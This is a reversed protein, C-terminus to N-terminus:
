KREWQDAEHVFRMYDERSLDGRQYAEDLQGIRRTYPTDCGGNCLIAGALAALQVCRLVPTPSARPRGSGAINTHVYSSWSLRHAAHRPTFKTM